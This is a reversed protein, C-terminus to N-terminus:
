KINYYKKLILIFNLEHYNTNKFYFVNTFFFCLKALLLFKYLDIKYQESYNNNNKKNKIKNIILLTIM